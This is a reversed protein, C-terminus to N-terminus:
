KRSRAAQTQAQERQLQKILEGQAVVTKELQAIRDGWSAVYEIAHNQVPPAKRAREQEAAAEEAIEKM